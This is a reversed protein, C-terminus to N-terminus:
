RLSAPRRPSPPSSGPTLRDRRAPRRRIGTAVPDRAGTSHKLPLQLRCNEWVRRRFFTIVDMSRFRGPVRSRDPLRSLIKSGTGAEPDSAQPSSWLGEHSRRIRTTRLNQLFIPFFETRLRLDTPVAASAFLPSSPVPPWTECQIVPHAFSSSSAPFPIRHLNLIKWQRKDRQQPPRSAWTVCRKKDLSARLAPPIDRAQPPTVHGGLWHWLPLRRGRVVPRGIVELPRYTLVIFGADGVPLFPGIM